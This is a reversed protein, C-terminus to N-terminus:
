IHAFKTETVLFITATNLSVSFKTSLASNPALFNFEDKYLNMEKGNEGGIIKFIWQQEALIGIYIEKEGWIEVTQDM